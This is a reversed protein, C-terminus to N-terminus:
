EDEPLFNLCVGNICYRKDTPTGFGEGEFVHGLHGDCKGCRVETRKYGIKYDINYKINEQDSPAYFSPWGSRSDFKEESSFLEAGCGACYYVGEGQDKFQKYIPSNPPETGDKRLVHYELDSLEKKWEQETKTVEKEPQTPEENLIEIMAPKSQVEKETESSCSITLYLPILFLLTRM